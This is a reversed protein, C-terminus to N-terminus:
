KVVGESNSDMQVGPVPPYAHRSCCSPPREVATVGTHPRPHQVADGAGCDEEEQENV